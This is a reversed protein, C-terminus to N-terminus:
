VTAVNHGFEAVVEAKMERGKRQQEKILEDGESAVQVDRQRQRHPTTPGDGPPILLSQFEEVTSVLDRTAMIQKKILNFEGEQFGKMEKLNETMAELPKLLAVAAEGAMRNVKAISVVQWLLALGVAAVLLLGCFVLAAVVILVVSSVTGM